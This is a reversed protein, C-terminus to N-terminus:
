LQIGRLEKGSDRLEDLSEQMRAVAKGLFDHGDQARKLVKLYHKAKPGTTIARHRIDIYTLEAIRKTNSVVEKELKLVRGRLYDMLLHLPVEQYNDPDVLYKEVSAMSVLHADGIEIIM